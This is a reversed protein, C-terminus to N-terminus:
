LLLKLETRMKIIQEFELRFLPMPMTTETIDFIDFNEHLMPPKNISLYLNDLKRCYNHHLRVLKKNQHSINVKKLFKKSRYLIITGILIVRDDTLNRGYRICDKIVDMAKEREILLNDLCNLKIHILTANLTFCQRYLNKLEEEYNVASFNTVLDNIQIFPISEFDAHKTLIFKDKKLMLSSTTRARTLLVILKRNVIVGKILDITLSDLEFPLDTCEMLPEACAM